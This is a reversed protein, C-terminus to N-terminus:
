DTSRMPRHDRFAAALTRLADRSRKDTLTSHLVIKSPALEPLGYREGIDITGVPAVRSSFPAVALGASVAAM